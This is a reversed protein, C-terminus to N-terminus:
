RHCTVYGSMHEVHVASEVHASGPRLHDRQGWRSQKTGPTPKGRRALGVNKFASLILGTKAGAAV